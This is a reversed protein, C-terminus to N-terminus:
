EKWEEVTVPLLATAATDPGEVHLHYGNGTTWGRTDLISADELSKNVKLLGVNLSYEGPPLPLADIALEVTYKGKTSAVLTRDGLM